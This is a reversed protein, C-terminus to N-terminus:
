LISYLNLNNTIVDFLLVNPTIFSYNCGASACSTVASQMTSLHLAIFSGYTM